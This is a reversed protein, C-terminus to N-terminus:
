APGGDGDVKMMAARAEKLEKVRKESGVKAIVGYVIAWGPIFSWGGGPESIGFAFLAVVGGLAMLLSVRSIKEEKRLAADIEDITVEQQVPEDTAETADTSARVLDRVTPEHVELGRRRAERSLVCWAYPHYSFPGLDLAERLSNDGLAGYYERLGQPDAVPLMFNRLNWLAFKGWSETIDFYFTETVGSRSQIQYIDIRRREDHHGTKVLVRWDLGMTGRKRILWAFIALSGMQDYEAGTIVVPNELSIGPGDSYVVSFRDVGDLLERQQRRLARIRFVDLLAM